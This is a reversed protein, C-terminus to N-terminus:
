CGRGRRIKVGNTSIVRTLLLVPRSCITRLIKGRQCGTPTEGRSQSWNIPFIKLASLDRQSLGVLICIGVSLTTISIATVEGEVEFVNKLVFRPTDFSFVMIKFSGHSYVSLTLTEDTVAADTVM